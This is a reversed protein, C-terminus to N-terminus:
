WSAYCLHRPIYHGILVFMYWTLMTESACKKWDEVGNYEAAAAFQIEKFYESLDIKEQFRRM